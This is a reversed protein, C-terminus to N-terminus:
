EGLSFPCDHRTWAVSRDTADDADDVRKVEFAVMRGSQENETFVLIHQWPPPGDEDYCERSLVDSWFPRLCEVFDEGDTYNGTWGWLSVGGKPGPNSGSRKSLDLLFGEADRTLAAGIAEQHKRALKAIAKNGGSPIVVHIHVYWGM